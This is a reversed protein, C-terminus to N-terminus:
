KLGKKELTKVKDGLNAFARSLREEHVQKTSVNIRGHYCDLYVTQSELGLLNRLVAPILVRGQSDIDADGGFHKAVYAVDEAWEAMEGANEFLNENSKWVPIPYLRVIQRDVTTIFVKDVNLKKLYELFEATLKLRGKDDVRTQAISHPPEVFPVLPAVAGAGGSAEVM